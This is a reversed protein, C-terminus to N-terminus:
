EESGSVPDEPPPKPEILAPVCMSKKTVLKALFADRQTSQFRALLNEDDAINRLATRLITETERMLDEIKKDNDWRGHVIKSRIDYCRTTMDFIAQIDKHTDALFFAIRRSLRRTMRGPNEGGFLSELAM